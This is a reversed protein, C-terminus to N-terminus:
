LKWYRRRWRYSIEQCRIIAFNELLLNAKALLLFDKL